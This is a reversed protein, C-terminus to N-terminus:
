VCDWKGSRILQDQSITSFLLHTVIWSADWFSPVYHQYLSMHVFWKDAVCFRILWKNAYASCACRVTVDVANQDKAVAFVAQVLQTGAGRQQYPPLVLIQALRKRVRDPFVFFNYVTCFGVQVSCFLQSTRPLNGFLSQPAVTEPSKLHHLYPIPSLLQLICHHISHGQQPLKSSALSAWWGLLVPSALAQLLLLGIPRFKRSSIIVILLQVPYLQRIWNNSELM